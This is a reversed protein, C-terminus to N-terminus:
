VLLVMTHAVPLTKPKASRWLVPTQTAMTALQTCLGWAKGLRWRQKERTNLFKAAFFPPQNSCQTRRTGLVRVLGIFEWRQWQAKLVM